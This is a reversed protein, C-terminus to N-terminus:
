RPCSGSRRRPRARVPIQRRARLRSTPPAAAGGAASVEDIIAKVYGPYDPATVVPLFTLNVGIPKKTMQRCRAIENALDAPSRQTTRKKLDEVFKVLTATSADRVISLLASRM